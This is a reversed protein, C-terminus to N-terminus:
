PAQSSLRNSLGNKFLSWWSYTQGSMQRSEQTIPIPGNKTDSGLRSQRM